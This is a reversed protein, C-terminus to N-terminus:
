GRRTARAVAKDVAKQRKAEFRANEAAETAAQRIAAKETERLEAREIIRDIRNQERDTLQGRRLGAWLSTGLIRATETVNVPDRDNIPM